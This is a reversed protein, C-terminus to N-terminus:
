KSIKEINEILKNTVSIAIKFEDIIQNTTDTFKIKAKKLHSYKIPLNSVSNRMVKVGNIANEMAPIIPRLSDSTDNLKKYNKTIHFSMLTAKEYAYIGRAYHFSFDDIEKNLKLTISNMFEAYKKVTRLVRKDFETLGQKGYNDIVNNNETTKKGLLTVLEVINSTAERFFKSSESEEVIKQLELDTISGNEIDTLFNNPEAGEIINTLEDISKVDLEKKKSVSIKWQTKTKQLTTKTINEWYTKDDDPLHGVLIVPVNFNLWYNYHIKSVYHTLHNESIHFNGEGTKIQAAIFQGTPNGNTSQEILADIGVDVIPQERFIWKVEKTFIFGTKYIGIRETNSDRM